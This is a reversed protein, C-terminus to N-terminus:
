AAELAEVRAESPKRQPTANLLQAAIKNQEARIGEILKENDM